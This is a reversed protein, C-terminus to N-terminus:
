VPVTLATNDGPFRFIPYLRVRESSVQTYCVALNFQANSDGADAAKTFCEVARVSDQQVGKGQLYCMGLRFHSTSGDCSVSSGSGDAELVCPRPASSICVGGESSVDSHMALAPTAIIAEGLGFTPDRLHPPMLTSNGAVSVDMPPPSATILSGQKSVGHGTVSQGANTIDILPM